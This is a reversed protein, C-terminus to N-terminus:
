KKIVEGNGTIGSLPHISGPGRQVVNGNGSGNAQLSLLSNVYINGNGQKKVRALKATVGSTDVDGNGQQQIDLEDISGSAVLKGNGRVEARFYRGVIGNVFVNQNGTNRVVSAEPMTIRITIKSDEIYLRNRDNGKLKIKLLNETDEKEVSLLPFLNEAIKISVSWAKGVEIEIVADALDVLEVKDFNAIDVKKEITNGKGTLPGRQSVALFPLSLFILLIIRQSIYITNM